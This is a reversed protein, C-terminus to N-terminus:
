APAAQNDGDECTVQADTAAKPGGCSGTHAMFALLAAKSGSAQLRRDRRMTKRWQLQRCLSLAELGSLKMRLPEDNMMQRLARDNARVQM